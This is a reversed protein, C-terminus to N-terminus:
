VGAFPVKINTNASQDDAQKLSVYATALNGPIHQDLHVFEHAMGSIFTHLSGSFLTGVITDYDVGHSDIHQLQTELHRLAETYGMPQNAQTTQRPPTALHQQSNEVPAHPPVWRKLRDFLERVREPFERKFSTLEPQHAFNEGLEDLSMSMIVRALKAHESPNYVDVGQLALKTTLDDHLRPDMTNFVNAVVDVFRAVLETSTKDLSFHVLREQAIQSGKETSATDGPPNSDRVSLSPPMWPPSPRLMPTTRPVFAKLKGRPRRQPEEDNTSLADLPRLLMSVTEAQHRKLERYANVATLTPAIQMCINRDIGRELTVSRSFAETEVPDHRDLAFHIKAKAGQATELGNIGSAEPPPTIASVITSFVRDAEQPSLRGSRLQALKDRFWNNLLKAKETACAEESITVGDRRALSELHRRTAHSSWGHSYLTRGDESVHCLELHQYYAPLSNNFRLRDFRREMMNDSNLQTNLRELQGMDLKATWLAAKAHSHAFGAGGDHHEGDAQSPLVYLDNSSHPQNALVYLDFLANQHTYIKRLDIGLTQSLHRQTQLAIQDIGHLNATTDGLFVCSRSQANEGKVLYHGLAEDVKTVNGSAIALKIQEWAAEASTTSTGRIRIMGTAHLAYLKTAIDDCAGGFALETLNGLNVPREPLRSLDVDLQLTAFQSKEQASRTLDALRDLRLYNDQDLSNLRNKGLSLRLHKALKVEGNSQVEYLPGSVRINKLAGDKRLFGDTFKVDTPNQFWHAILSKTYAINLSGDGAKRWREQGDPTVERAQFGNEDHRMVVDTPHDVKLCKPDAVIAMWVLLKQATPTLRGKESSLAQRITQLAHETRENNASAEARQSFVRHILDPIHKFVPAASSGVPPEILEIVARAAAAFRADDTQSKDVPCNLVRFLRGVERYDLDYNTPPLQHVKSPSQELPIQTVTEQEIRAQIRNDRSAEVILNSRNRFVVGTNTDIHDDSHATSQSVSSQVHTVNLVTPALAIESVRGYSSAISYRAKLAETLEPRKHLLQQYEARKVDTKPTSSALKAKALVAKDKTLAQWKREYGPGQLVRRTFENSKLKLIEEGDWKSVDKNLREELTSTYEQMEPHSGAEQTLTSLRWTPPLVDRRIMERALLRSKPTDAEILKRFASERVNSELVLNSRGNRQARGVNAIDRGLKVLTADDVSTDSQAFTSIREAARTISM